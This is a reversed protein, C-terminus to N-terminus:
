PLLVPADLPALHRVPRAAWPSAFAYVPPTPSSPLRKPEFGLPHRTPAARLAYAYVLAAALPESSPVRAAARGSAFAFPM